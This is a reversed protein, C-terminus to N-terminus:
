MWKDLGNKLKTSNSKGIIAIKWVYESPNRELMIGNKFCTNFVQVGNAEPKYLIEYNGNLKSVLNKCEERLRKRVKNQWYLVCKCQAYSWESHKKKMREVHEKLNFQVGVLYFPDKVIETFSLANPPCTPNNDYNPCGKPHRPYPLKCWENTHSNLEIDEIQKIVIKM